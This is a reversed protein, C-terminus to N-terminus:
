RDLSQAGALREAVWNLAEPTRKWIWEPPGGQIMPM